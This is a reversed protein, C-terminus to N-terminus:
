GSSLSVTSDPFAGLDLAYDSESSVVSGGHFWLSWVLYGLERGEEKQNERPFPHQHKVVPNHAEKGLATYNYAYSLFDKCEIHASVNTPDESGKTHHVDGPYDECNKRLFM